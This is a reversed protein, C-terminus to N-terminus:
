RPMTTLFVIIALVFLGFLIGTVSAGVTLRDRGKVPLLNSVIGFVIAAVPMLYLSLLVLTNATAAGLPALRRFLPSSILCPFGSFFALILSLAAFLGSYSRITWRPRQSVSRRPYNLFPPKSPPVSMSVDQEHSMM